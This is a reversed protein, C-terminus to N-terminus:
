HLLDGHPPSVKAQHRGGEETVTVPYWLSICSAVGPSITPNRKEMLGGKRRVSM